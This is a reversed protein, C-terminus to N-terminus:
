LPTLLALALGKRRAAFWSGAPFLFSTAASHFAPAFLFGDVMKSPVFMHHLPKPLQPPSYHPPFNRELSFCESGNPFYSFFCILSRRIGSASGTRHMQYSPWAVSHIVNSVGHCRQIRFQCVKGVRWHFSPNTASNLPHPIRETIITTSGQKQIYM